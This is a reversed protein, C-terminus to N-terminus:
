DFPVYSTGRTADLFRRILSLVVGKPDDRLEAASVRATRQPAPGSFANDGWHHIGYPQAGEIGTLSMGVDVHGVYGAAEYFAGMAAFFSALNGALITEFLVRTGNSMTDVVRGCFFHGTGDFDLDVKATYKPADDSEPYTSIAWGAAGRRWAHIARRFDPDYGLGDRDARVNGWAEAGKILLAQIENRDRAVREVMSDDPVVPRAFALVYGLEPDAEPARALEVRLLAERDVEWRERRTYLAAVEAESLLRNGKAGRGYYRMDGGSIVQHPARPSQPVIVLVYGKSPDAELPLTQVRIFPPETISTEVIQAIREPTGALELPSLVTLRKNKDEGLGYLLSGGDVTMADVDVAQDHNKRPPPLAGKADFTHTEELDARAAAQEVEAASKPIWVAGEESVAKWFGKWVRM